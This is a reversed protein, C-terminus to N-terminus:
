ITKLLIRFLIRGRISLLLSLGWCMSVHCITRLLIRLLIRGRQALRFCRLSLAITTRLRAELSTQNWLRQCRRRSKSSLSWTLRLLNCRACRGAGPSQLKQRRGQVGSTRHQHIWFWACVSALGRPRHTYFVGALSLLGCQTSLSLTLRCHQNSGPNGVRPANLCAMVGHVRSAVPLLPQSRRLFLGPVYSSLTLQTPLLHLRFTMAHALRQVAPLLCM